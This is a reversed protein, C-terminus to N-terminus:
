STLQDAWQEHRLEVDGSYSATITHSGVVLLASTTWTAKGTSDLTGTGLISTGTTFHSLGLQSIRAQPQPPSTATLTLAQDITSSSASSTLGTTTATKATSDVLEFLGQANVRITM